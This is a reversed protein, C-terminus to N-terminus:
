VRSIVCNLHFKVDVVGDRIGIMSHTQIEFEVVGLVFGSDFGGKWDEIQLWGRMM